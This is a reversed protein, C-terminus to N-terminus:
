WQRQQKYCLKALLFICVIEGESQIYVIPFSICKKKSCNQVSFIYLQWTDTVSISGIIQMTYSHSISEIKIQIIIYYQIYYDYLM